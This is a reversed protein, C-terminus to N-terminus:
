VDSATIESVTGSLAWSTASEITVNVFDGVKLGESSCEVIKATRTKGEAKGNNRTKEVMIEVTQGVYRKNNALATEKLIDNLVNWRRKKEDYSVDDKMQASLTGPRPSYISIYAMDFGIERFLEASEEFNEKTEGPFGVIIDTSVSVNPVTARIKGILARYEATTYRRNMAKLIEDSGAQVPMHIHECVNPLEAVGQIVQDTIDTPYPSMFRIRKVGPIPDVLRLIDAFRTEKGKEDKWIYSDVNQGLLVVECIGLAVAKKVEEVIEAPDRSIERGRSFPVICYSCFKDCGTMIPILAQYTQESIPEIHFYDYLVETPPTIDFFECLISPLLPLEKIHFAFDLEPLMAKLNYKDHGVICGTIGVRLNPNNRKMALWQKRLGLVRDEAKQRVSCTNYIIVDAKEPTDTKEFGLLTLMRAIRESDSYNQACGLTITHYYM